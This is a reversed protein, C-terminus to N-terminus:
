NLFQYIELLRGERFKVSREKLPIWWLKKIRTNKPGNQAM